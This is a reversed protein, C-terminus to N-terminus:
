ENDHGKRQITMEIKERENELLPDTRSEARLLTNSTWTNEQSRDDISNGTANGVKCESFLMLCCM